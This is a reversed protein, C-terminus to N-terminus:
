GNLQFDTALHFNLDDTTITERTMQPTEVEATVQDTDAFNENEADAYYDHYYNDYYYNDSQDEHCNIARQPRNMYNIKHSRTAADTELPTPKTPQMPRPAFVNRSSNQANNYAPPNMNNNRFMNQSHFPQRFNSFTNMPRSTGAMPPIQVQRIAPNQRFQFDNTKAQHLNQNPVKPVMKFNQRTNLECEGNRRAIKNAKDNAYQYAQGLNTPQLLGVHSSYPEDLGDVFKELCLKDIFKVLEEPHQWQADLQIHTSIGTYCDSIMTYFDRVSDRNQRSSFLKQLLTSLERKDGYIIKLQEKIKKWDLPTGSSALLDGAEGIIKNRVEMLWLEYLDTNILHQYMRMVRDACTIWHNIQKPNGSFTPLNKILDPIKGKQCEENIDPEHRQNPGPPVVPQQVNQRINEQAQLAAIQDERNRLQENLNDLQEQLEDIENHDMDRSRNSRLGRRM